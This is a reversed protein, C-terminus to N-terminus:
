KLNDLQNDIAKELIGHTMDMMRSMFGHTALEVKGSSEKIVSFTRRLNSRYLVNIATLLM